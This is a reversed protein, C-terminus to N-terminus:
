RRGAPRACAGDRRARKGTHEMRVDTRDLEGEPAGPLKKQFNKAPRSVGPGVTVPPARMSMETRRSPRGPWGRDGHAQLRHGGDRNSPGREWTPRVSPDPLPTPNDEHASARRFASSTTPSIGPESTKGPPTERHGPNADHTGDDTETQRLILEPNELLRTVMDGYPGPLTSGM